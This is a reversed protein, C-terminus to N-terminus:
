EEKKDPDPYFAGNLHQWQLVMVGIINILLQAVYLTKPMLEEVYEFIEFSLILAVCLVCANWFLCALRLTYSRLDITICLSIIGIILQIVALCCMVKGQKVLTTREFNEDSGSYTYMCVAGGQFLLMAGGIIFVIKPNDEVRRSRWLNDM